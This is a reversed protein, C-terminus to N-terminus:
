PADSGDRGTCGRGGAALSPRFAVTLERRFYEGKRYPASTNVTVTNTTLAAGM